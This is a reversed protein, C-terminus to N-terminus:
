ATLYWAKRLANKELIFLSLVSSSFDLCEILKEKTLKNGGIDSWDVNPSNKVSTPLKGQSGFERYIHATTFFSGPKNELYSFLFKTTLTVFGMTCNNYSFRLRVHIFKSPDDTPVDYESNNVVRIISRFFNSIISREIQCLLDSHIILYDLKQCGFNDSWSVLIEDGYTVQLSQCLSAPLGISNISFDDVFSVNDFSVDKICISGNSFFKLHRNNLLIEDALSQIVKLHVARTFSSEAM